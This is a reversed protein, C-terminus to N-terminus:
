FSLKPSTFFTFAPHPLTPLNVLCVLLPNYLSSLENVIQVFPACVKTFRWCCFLETHQEAGILAPYVAPLCTRKISAFPKRVQLFQYIFVVQCLGEVLLLVTYYTYASRGLMRELWLLHRCQALHQGYTDTLWHKAQFCIISKLLVQPYIESKVTHLKLILNFSM